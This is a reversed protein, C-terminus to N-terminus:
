CLNAEMKQRLLYREGSFEGQEFAIVQCKNRAWEPQAALATEADPETAFCLAHKLDLFGLVDNKGAFTHQLRSVFDYNYRNTAGKLAIAYRINEEPVGYRADVAM